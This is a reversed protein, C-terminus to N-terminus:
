RFHDVVMLDSGEEEAQTFLLFSEDPAVSIGNHTQKLTRYLEVEKGGFPRYCIAIRTPEVQREFYVGNKGLAYNRNRVGQVVRLENAGDPAASWLADDRLYFVRSGDPSEFPVSGGRSTVQVPDGGHAPIKWIESRGTQQGMFYVSQGDRSWSPTAALARVNTLRRPEGGAVEITYVQFEGSVNSDFAVSTGDPSWRPTGTHGRGFKTLPHPRSGDANAIWIETAGQRDSQFAILRGDASYQPSSDVRSSAILDAPAANPKGLPLRWINIDQVRTDVYVLRGHRSLTPSTGNDGIGALRRSRGGDVPIRWLAEVGSQDSHFLIERGDATWAPSNNVGPDTTLQRPEGTARYGDSLPLLFLGATAPGAARAFALYRGDPSFAPNQDRSGAVGAPMTTLARTEGSPVRLLSLVTNATKPEPYPVALWNGDPTWALLRGDVQWSYGKGVPIIGIRRERGGLAPVLIVEARDERIRLFAISRGDPSWAPSLDMAPDDTLRVPDGEGLVKAYIDWNNRQPGDWHFAVFAGDPSVTPCLEFGTYSTLLTAVPPPDRGPVPKLWTKWAVAASLVAIAAAAGVWRLLPTRRVGRPDGKGTQVPEIEELLLKVDAIHHFRKEPDKRLCREIVRELEPPIGPCFDRVPAPDEKLVAALTEVPTPRAFARRGTVMEYLVAGFSFIDVAQDVAQHSVQEPSMYCPTGVLVGLSTLTSEGTIGVESESSPVLSLHKAIGFDLLKISGEPTVVINSPKLDRHVIHRVHAACLADAIQVAYALARPVSLRGSSIIRDLTIGPVYEMVLCDCGDQTVIDFLAAVHPHNLASLSRAENILAHRSRTDATRDSRLVKLAVIRDLRVDRARYVEGMGGCGLLELLAYPGFRSAQGAEM